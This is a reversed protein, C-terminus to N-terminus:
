SAGDFAAEIAARRDTPQEKGGGGGGALSGAATKAKRARDQDAKRQGQQNKFNEAAAMKARVSSNAWCASDYLEAIDLPQGTSSKAQALALM